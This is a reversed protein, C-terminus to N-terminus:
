QRYEHEFALLREYSEDAPLALGQLTAYASHYAAIDSERELVLQGTLSELFVVDPPGDFSLIIFKNTPVPIPGAAFPVVRITVNPLESATVLTKLQDQMVAPGGVVRRLASEDIIASFKTAAEHLVHRQRELRTQVRQQVSEDSMDVSAARVVVQAYRATQLLGPVVGMAFDRISTAEAELDVYTAYYHPLNFPQWWARVQGGAALESLREREEDTLRYLAALDRIDRRTINRQGTEVRSIKSPSVLLHKAADEVTFGLATRRARLMTGLERRRAIPSGTGPL